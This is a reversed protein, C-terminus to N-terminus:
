KDIVQLLEEKRISSFGEIKDILRSKRSYMAGPGINLLECITETSLGFYLYAVLRRQPILLKDKDSYVDNLLNDSCRNIENELQLLFTRDNRLLDIHRSIKGLIGKRENESLRYYQSYLVDLSRFVTRLLPVEAKSAQRLMNNERSFADIKGSLDRNERSIVGASRLIRKLEAKKMQLVYAFIIVLILVTLISSVIIWINREKEIRLKRKSISIKDRNNKDIMFIADNSVKDGFMKNLIRYDAQLSNYARQYDGVSAYYEYLVMDEGYKASIQESIKKITEYSADDNIMTWLLFNLDRLQMTKGQDRKYIIDLYKRAEHFDDRWLYTNALHAAVTDIFAVDGLDSAETYLSHLINLSSDTKNNQALATAYWLEAERIFISSDLRVYCQWAKRSEDEMSPWDGIASAVESASTHLKARYLIDTSDANELGDHFAIMAAGYTGANQHIRGQYFLSRMLNRRDGIHRFFDVAPTIGDAVTDDRFTKDRGEAWLLRFMASDRPTVLRSREYLELLTYASDPDTQLLSDIAALGDALQAGAGYQRGCSAVTLLFTLSLFLIRILFPRM